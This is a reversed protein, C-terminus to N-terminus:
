VSVGEEKSKWGPFYFCRLFISNNGHFAEDAPFHMIKIFFGKSGRSIASFIWSFIWCGDHQQLPVWERLGSLWDQEDTIWDCM